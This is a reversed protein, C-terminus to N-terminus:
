VDVCRASRSASSGQAQRSSPVLERQMCHTDSHISQKGVRATNAYSAVRVRERMAYAVRM